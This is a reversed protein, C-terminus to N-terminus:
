HSTSHSPETSLSAKWWAGTDGVELLTMEPVDMGYGSVDPSGNPREQAEMHRDIERQTGPAAGQGGATDRSRRKGFSVSLSLHDRIDPRTRRRDFAGM